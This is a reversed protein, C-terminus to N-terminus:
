VMTKMPFNPSKQQVEGLQYYQDGKTEMHHKHWIGREKLVQRLETAENPWPASLNGVRRVLCTTVGFVNGGGIDDLISNGVHAMQSKKLGYESQLKQFSGTLPKHAKGIYHDKLGLQKAVAKARGENANTMLWVEFGLAKLAEFQTKAEKPIHIHDSFMVRKVALAIITDDIDFSILKIGNAKLKDYDIQYIDPQYVDPVYRQGLQESSLSEFKNNGM